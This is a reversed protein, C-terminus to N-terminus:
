QTGTVSDNIGQKSPFPACERLGEGAMRFSHVLAQLGLVGSYHSVGPALFSLSHGLGSVQACRHEKRICGQSADVTSLSLVFVSFVPVSLSSVLLRALLWSDGLVSCLISPESCASGAAGGAGAQCREPETHVSGVTGGRSYMSSRLTM